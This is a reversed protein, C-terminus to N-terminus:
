RESYPDYKHWRRRRPPQLPEFSAADVEVSVPRAQGTFVDPVDRGDYWRAQEVGNRERTEFAARTSKCGPNRLVIAVKMRTGPEEARLAAARHRGEHGCVRGNSRDVDLFPTVRIEGSRVWENYTAVSKAKAAIDRAQEDDKTTLRLFDDPHMEIFGAAPFYQQALRRLNETLLLEGLPTRRRRM